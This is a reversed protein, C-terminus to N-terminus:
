TKLGLLQAILPLARNAREEDFDEEKAATLGTTRKGRAVREGMQRREGAEFTAFTRRLLPLVADFHLPTLGAVWDDIVQWLADDLLLLLGSGRLFGEVWGAAQAPANATSLALSLRRAAEAADIQKGELLLRCARGAILGHLNPSDALQRLVAQWMELHAADQLLVLAAHTALIKDFMEAAAEDNLSGCAGPLGICIRAVLGDVVARVMVADTQRVNGYRLINALPPLAGMLHAVDAAVAAEAQLRAMVREAAEPLDALLTADLLSTLAPLDPAVDADNKVRASAAALITNGWVGAEILKVAYEPEWELRWLEWFTGQARAPGRQIEGWPLALLNLRHLLRSRDLAMPERLDLKLDSALAEPKLRLRKQERALDQALPVAPTSEPVAGLRESIILKHRIIELPLSDGFCLVTQTAENLEPLGPLPRGRVAALSEALRVAEIVGASSADLDEARLLHAVKALWRTAVASPSTSRSLTSRSLTQSPLRFLFDYWGPSAIGAGYGSAYALRSYTWPIWTATVKVKPLSKLVAADEKAPPMRALVPAHWAGCVVAIRQFGEKQAARITQRMWAERQAEREPELISLQSQIAADRLATMAELIAAFIDASDQRHEVMHEWWRESDNYGAAQALYSIPDRNLFARIEDPSPPAEPGAEPEDEEASSGSEGETESEAPPTQAAESAKTKAEEDAAIGMQIAQPLDMFRIPVNQKLGFQITQWEPSFVALPYYIARQPNGTEHLLLAVPPKMEEDAALALVEAADPPGELLICDPGLAEL